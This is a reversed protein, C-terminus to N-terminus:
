TFMGFALRASTPSSSAPAGFPPPPSAVDGATPTETTVVFELWFVIRNALM